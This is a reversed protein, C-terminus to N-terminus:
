LYVHRRVYPTYGQVINAVRQSFNKVMYEAPPTAPHAMKVAQLIDDGMLLMTGADIAEQRETTTRLHVAPFGVIASEEALTGSDSIVCKANEQLKMYDYFNFPMCINVNPHRPYSLLKERMRPHATVVVPADDALTTLVNVMEDFNEGTNEDRHCSFVYYDKLHLVKLVPSADIKKLNATIVEHMPSGTVFTRDRPLGEALLNRRANETYCLNVDAIHDLLRRNVEEPVNEDFCRNGAELHFFPIKHRKAVYGAVSSNTDGLIVVADVPNQLLYEDFQTFMKGIFDSPSKSAIALTPLEDYDMVEVLEKSYNQGTYLISHNFLEDFLSITESLKILEPRTGLLTLVRM